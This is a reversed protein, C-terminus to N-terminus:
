SSSGPVAAKLRMENNTARTSKVNLRGKHCVVLETPAEIVAFIVTGFDQHGLTVTTDRM